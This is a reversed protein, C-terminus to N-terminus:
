PGRCGAKIWDPNSVLGARGVAAIVVDAQKVFSGLDQTHSHCVTVTADRGLLLRM